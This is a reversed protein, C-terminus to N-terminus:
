LVARDVFHVRGYFDPGYAMLTVFDDLLNLRLDDVTCGILVLQIFTVDSCQRCSQIILPTLLYTVTSLLV